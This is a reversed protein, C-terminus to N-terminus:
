DQKKEEDKTSIVALAGIIVGILFYVWFSSFALAGIMGKNM